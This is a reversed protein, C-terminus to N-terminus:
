ATGYKEVLMKFWEPADRWEPFVGMLYRTVTEAAKVNGKCAKLFTSVKVPRLSDLAVAAEERLQCLSQLKLSDVNLEQEMKSDLDVYKKLIDLKGPFDGRLLQPMKAKM